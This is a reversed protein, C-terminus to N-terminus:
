STLGQAKLGVKCGEADLQKKKKGRWLWVTVKTRPLELIDAREASQTFDRGEATCCTM